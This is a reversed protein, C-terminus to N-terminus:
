PRSTHVSPRRACRERFSVYHPRASRSAPQGSAMWSFTDSIRTLSAARRLVGASM